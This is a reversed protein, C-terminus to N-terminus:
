QIQIQSRGEVPIVLIGHEHHFQREDSKFASPPESDNVAKRASVQTPEEEVGSILVYYRKGGWGDVTFTVRNSDDHINSITCPAHIFWGRNPLRKVDYLKGKGYLETLHAQVTGPNIAPGAAIQARLDFFDPLLGQRQQDRLPWSMQLGATTIGKAIREWPGQPDYESLLHLASGYVLGCWQVPRGLWLPAKWNTAGLVAITAYSGVRGATPPYLYVFPVGTWAWYRAQDLYKEQGSVIYGLTYAKVMHASALIDPTHLPVEWTQAGRPVTGAYLATQKDLLELAKTILERDASLAAGELIGVVDGGALGNAYRAFHTRSYDTKGPRYLKVGDADFGELLNLAASHKQRV